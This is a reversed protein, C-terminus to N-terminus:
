DEYSLPILRDNLVTCKKCIRNHRGNSLFEDDCRLCIVKKNRKILAKASPFKKRKAYDEKWQRTAKAKNKAVYDKYAQRQSAKQCESVQFKKNITKGRCLTRNGGTLKGCIKCTKDIKTKLAM